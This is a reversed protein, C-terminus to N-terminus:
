RLQISREYSDRVADRARDWGLGTGTGSGDKEWQTRLDAEVEDFKKGAHRAQAEAGYKYAPTYTDFSVTKSRGNEWKFTAQISDVGAPLRVPVSGESLSVVLTKPLPSAWQSWEREELAQNLSQVSDANVGM